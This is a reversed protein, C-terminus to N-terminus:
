ICEDSYIRKRVEISYSKNIAFRERNKKAAIATIGDAAEEMEQVQHLDDEGGNNEQSGGAAASSSQNGLTM